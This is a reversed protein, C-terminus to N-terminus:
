CLLVVDLSSLRSREPLDRRSCCYGAVLTGAAQISALLLLFSRLSVFTTIPGETATRPGMLHPLPFITILAVSVMALAVVASHSVRTM